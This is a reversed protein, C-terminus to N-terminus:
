EDEEPNESDLNDITFGTKARFENELVKADAMYRGSPSSFDLGQMGFLRVPREDAKKKKSRKKM